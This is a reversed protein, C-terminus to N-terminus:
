NVPRKGAKIDLTTQQSEFQGHIHTRKSKDLSDKYISTDGFNENPEDKM